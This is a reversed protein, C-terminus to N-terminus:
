KAQARRPDDQRQAQEYGLDRLADRAVAADDFPEVHSGFDQGTEHGKGAIVVVDGARAAALAGSIARARDVDVLPAVGGRAGSAVEEIIALPRESRPNDSTIVVVDALESAVQGMLPRKARDRDGGAGFV